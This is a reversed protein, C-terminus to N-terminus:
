NFSNTMLPSSLCTTVKECNHIQSFARPKINAKEINVQKVANFIKKTNKLEYDLSRTKQRPSRPVRM